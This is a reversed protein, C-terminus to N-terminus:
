IKFGIILIDDIQSINATKQWDFLTTELIQKQEQFPLKHNKQLLVKLRKRMFKKNKEGGFQDQYGDSYMYYSTKNDIKIITDEFNIGETKISGGISFRSGKYEKLEEDKISILTNKAGSFIIQNKLKDIVCLSIDMGDRSGTEEQKLTKVIEKHLSMLIKSPLVIQKEIIAERLLNTGIMAMLSGPVGHGTCDAVVLFTYKQNEFFFYFDGSVVDKPLYLTFSDSFAAQITDQSPLIADQIRKAYNISATIDKNKLEIETKQEKVTKINISLEQNSENLKITRQKVKEELQQTTRQELELAKKTSIEKEKKIIRYREAVAISLLVVELASGIEAGHNTLFNIPLSGSNRLTIMLGGTIYGLWAFTYIYAFKNGKIWCYIGVLLLSFSHLKVMNNIASKYFTFDLILAFFALIFILLFYRYFLISYKKIKLFHLAFLGTAYIIGVMAIRILYINVSPYNPYIYKFLYGSTGGFIILTFFISIVYYLYSVDKVIIYIILNYLCIVLLIGFYIGYGIHKNQSSQITSKQTTISLPFLIPNSSVVRLYSINKHSQTFYLPFVFSNSALNPRSFYPYHWGTKTVKWVSNNTINKQYFTISDTFTIDLNLNWDQIETENEVEIKLWITNSNYGLNLHESSNKIWKTNFIDSSIEEITFAKNEDEIYYSLTNGLNSIGKETKLTIKQAFATIQLCCLFLLLFLKGTKYPTPLCFIM